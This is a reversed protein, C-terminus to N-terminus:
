ALGSAYILVAAILAPIGCLDTSNVAMGDRM